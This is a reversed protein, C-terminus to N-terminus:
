FALGMGLRLEDAANGALPDVNRYDLKLVVNPHPKFQLGPVFIRRAQTRDRPLGSPIDHQTDLYELRFFPSLSLESGPDLWQWLDWAIEAYGGIMNEAITRNVGTVTVPLAASLEGANSLNAEAWLGRLQLPGNRYQAHLEWILTQVSPFGPQDQESDGSYLAGGVLLGALPELDVRGVYALDDARAREGNQRGGRLGSSRFGTADFGNMVYARYHVGEGISGFVGAGNERWTSPIIQQEVEPRATGFYFPPEHIENLFGMPVLLLGGRVGLEPQWHYELSAFEVSVSGPSSTGTTAHEYEIEANFLLKPTFKYGTYLVARLLDATDNGDGSVDGIEKSYFAEAYGGISLGRSVGYVKSAAPGMGYASALEPEEPVAVSTRLREVEELVVDLKRRLEAIEDDRAREADTPAAERAPEAAGPAGALGWALGLACIVGFGTGRGM